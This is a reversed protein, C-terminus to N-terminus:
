NTMGGKTTLHAAALQQAQQSAPPPDLRDSVQTPLTRGRLAYLGAVYQKENLVRGRTGRMLSRAEENLPHWCFQWPDDHYTVIAAPLRAMVGLKALVVSNADANDWRLATRYKYDILACPTGNDYETLVFDLDVAPCDYGWLRHRKSLDEDRWNTREISSV